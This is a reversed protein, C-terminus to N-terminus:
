KFRRLKFLGRLVNERLGELLMQFHIDSTTSFITLECDNTHNAQAIQELKTPKGKTSQASICFISLVITRM